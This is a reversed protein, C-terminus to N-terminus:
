VGAAAAKMKELGTKAVALPEQKWYDRNFLELSLYGQFGTQKLDRLIQKLPAVGDGAHVRQADNIAARPPEAPYDNMHFARMAGGNLQKLGNFDNGGKYLHYVDLLLCAKPHGCEIAVYAVEGLRSLNRSFGWVELEATVGAQDGIELLKRYREAAKQLDLGPEKTAGVPPAALATGGIQRVLEMSRKAEELGKNRQAEDDVIWAAFGIASPVALGKDAIRRALDKTTGGSKVHDDIERIWPEIGDYGAKAAIDIKAVLDLKDARITSTNLCYRFGTKPADAAPLAAPAAALAPLAALFQRRTPM